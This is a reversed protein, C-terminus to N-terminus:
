HRYGVIAGIAAPMARHMGAHGRSCEERSGRYVVASPVAGCIGVVALRVLCSPMPWTLDASALHPSTLCGVVARYSM